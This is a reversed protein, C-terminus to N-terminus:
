GQHKVTLMYSPLRMTRVPSLLVLATRFAAANWVISRLLFVGAAYSALYAVRAGFHLQIGTGGEGAPGGNRNFPCLSTALVPPGTIVANCARPWCMLAIPYTSRFTREM